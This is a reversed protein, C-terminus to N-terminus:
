LKYGDQWRKNKIDSRVALIFCTGTIVILIIAFLPDMARNILGLISISISALFGVGIFITCLKSLKSLTALEMKSVRGM